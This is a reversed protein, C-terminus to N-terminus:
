SGEWLKLQQVEQRLDQYFTFIMQRDNESATPTFIPGSGPKTIYRISDDPIKGESVLLDNFVKSYIVGFNEIDWNGRGVTTIIECDIILPLKDIVPIQDVYPRLFDKLGNVIVLRTIYSNGAYIFQNNIAQYKPKGVRGPNAIIRNGDANLLYGDLDYGSSKKLISKPIDTKRLNGKNKSYYIPKQSRSIEV